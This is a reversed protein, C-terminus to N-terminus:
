EDGKEVFMASWLLEPFKEVFYFSNFNLESNQKKDNSKDLEKIVLLWHNL